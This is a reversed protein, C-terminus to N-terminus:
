IEVTEVGDLLLTQSNSLNFDPCSLNKDVLSDAKAFLKKNIERESSDTQYKPNQKVQYKPFNQKTVTKTNLWKNKYVSDPVFVFQEM